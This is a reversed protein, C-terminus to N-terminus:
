NSGKIKDPDHYVVIDGDANCLITFSDMIHDLESDYVSINIGKEKYYLFVGTLTSPVDNVEKDIDSQLRYGRGNVLKGSTNIPEDSYEEELVEGKYVHAIYNKTDADLFDTKMGLKELKMRDSPKLVGSLDASVNILLEYDSGEIMDVLNDLDTCSQFYREAHQVDYVKKEEPYQNVAEKDISYGYHEVLYAGMYDTLKDAGRLNLHETNWIDHYMDLGLEKFNEELNFDIYPIDHADAYDQVINHMSINWTLKPAKILIFDINNEKCYEVMKNLYLLGEATPEITDDEKDYDIIIREYKIDTRVTAAMINGRMVQSNLDQYTFDQETLENWRTHYKVIPLIYSWKEISTKDECVYDIADWKNKSMPAYDLVNRYRSEEADEFLMSPDFIVTKIDQTKDLEKLCFYSMSVPQEGTACSYASIGYEELLRMSSFGYVMQSTGLVCVDVSNDELGYMGEMVYSASTGTIWKARFLGTVRSLVFLLVATFVIGKVLNRLTKKM